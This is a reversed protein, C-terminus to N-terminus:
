KMQSCTDELGQAVFPSPPCLLPRPSSLKAATRAMLSWEIGALTRKIIVKNCQLRSIHMTSFPMCRTQRVPMLCNPHAQLLAPNTVLSLSAALPELSHTIMGLGLRKSIILCAQRRTNERCDPPKWRLQREHEPSSRLPYALPWSVPENTPPMHATASEQSHWRASNVIESVAMQDPRNEESDSVKTLLAGSKYEPWQGVAQAQSIPQLALLMPVVLIYPLHLMV